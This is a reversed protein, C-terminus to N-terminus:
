SWWKMHMLAIVAVAVTAALSVIFTISDGLPVATQQLVFQGASAALSGYLSKNKASKATAMQATTSGKLLRMFSWAYFAGDFVVTTFFGAVLRILTSSINQSELLGFLDFLEALYTYGFMFTLVANAILALKLIINASKFNNIFDVIDERSINPISAM